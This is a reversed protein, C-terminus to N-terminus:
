RYRAGGLNGGGPVDGLCKAEVNRQSREAADSRDWHPARRTLDNGPRQLAKVRPGDKRAIVWGDHKIEWADNRHSGIPVASIVGFSGSVKNGQVCDPGCLWLVFSFGRRPPAARRVGQLM